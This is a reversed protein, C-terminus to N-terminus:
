LQAIVAGLRGIDMVKTRHVWERFIGELVVDRATPLVKNGSDADVVFALLNAAHRELHGQIPLGDGPGGEYDAHKLAFLDFDRHSALTLDLEICRVEIAM